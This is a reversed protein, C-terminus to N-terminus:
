PVALEVLAATISAELQVGIEEVKIEVDPRFIGSDHAGQMVSVITGLLDLAQTIRVDGIALQRALLLTTQEDRLLSAITIM